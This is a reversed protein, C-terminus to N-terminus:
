ISELITELVEEYDKFGNLRALFVEGTAAKFSTNLKFLRKMAICVSSIYKEKFYEEPNEHEVMSYSLEGEDYKTKLDRATTYFKFYKSFEMFESTCEYAASKFMVMSIKKNEVM